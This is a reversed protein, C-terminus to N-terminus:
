SAVIELLPSPSAFVEGVIAARLSGASRLATLMAESREPSVAIFLGGSTQPDALLTLHEESLDGRTQMKPRALKLNCRTM